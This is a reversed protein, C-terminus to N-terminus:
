QLADSLFVGQKSADFALRVLAAALRAGTTSRYRDRLRRAGLFGVGKLLGDVVTAGVAEGPRHHDREGIIFSPRAIVHPLGSETLEQEVRARANLYANRTGPKVGMSSLYVFRPTIGAAKAARILMVSLGYDVADYTDAVASDSGRKGRARTTGLLAFVHAPSLEEFRATLAELTWATTDVEAGLEGFRSRWSDLRSSDPRVHAVVRVGERAALAAVVHRGTLGTAGAVFAIPSKM